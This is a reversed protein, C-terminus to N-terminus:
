KGEKRGEYKNVKGTQLNYAIQRRKIKKLTPRNRTERKRNWQDINKYWYQITKIAIEIYCVKSDPLTHGEVNDKKLM